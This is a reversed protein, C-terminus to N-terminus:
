ADVEDWRRALDLVWACNEDTCAARAEATVVYSSELGSRVAIMECWLDDASMSPLGTRQLFADFEATLTAFTAPTSM